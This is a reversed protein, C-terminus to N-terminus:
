SAWTTNCVLHPQPWSGLHPPSHQNYNDSNPLIHTPVFGLLPYQTLKRSLELVTLIGWCLVTCVVWCLLLHGCRRKRHFRYYPNFQSVSFEKKGWSKEEEWRQQRSSPKKHLECLDSAGFGSKTEAPVLSHRRKRFKHKIDQLTHWYNDKSRHYHIDPVAGIKIVWTWRYAFSFSKWHVKSLIPFM